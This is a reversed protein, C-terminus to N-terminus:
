NDTAFGHIVANSNSQWVQVNGGPVRQKILAPIPMDSIDGACHFQEYNNLCNFVCKLDEHSNAPFEGLTAQFREAMHQRISKRHFFAIIELNTKLRVEFSYATVQM